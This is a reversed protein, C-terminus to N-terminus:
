FRARLGVYAARDSTGFGSQTQYQADFLNEVRLYLEAQDSVSWTLTADATTFDKMGVVAFSADYDLFDSVNRLSALLRLDDRLLTDIGLVLDHRPVRVLRTDTADLAELYTYAGFAETRAGLPLTGALELGTRRSDGDGNLLSSITGPQCSWTAFDYPCPDYMIEDSITIGFLTASLTAGSDFRKDLGLELSRSTEPDLAANGIFESSPYDGYLEDLSPARYGTAAAGRLTLGPDPQWAFTLRGTTFGGFASHDDHRLTVGLDLGEAPRLLLQAFGGATRTEASGGAINAYDAGETTTDYGLIAEGRAGLGTRAVYSLRRRDSEFPTSGEIRRTQEFTTFALDHRVRGTQAELFVRAGRQTNRTMGPTDGLGYPPVDLYGDYEAQAAEYFSSAGLTVDDTLRYSGSFSLRHLDSGDKETNGDNEDAASFGKSGYGSATLALAGRDGRAAVGASGRLTEHSGAEVAIRGTRGPELARLTQIDIVGAVASSGYLASQSGRLVEIRGIDGTSLGGFDFATTPAGPDSVDIGDIRVAIYEGALGRLRLGAQTGPPGQTALTIGPLRALYDALRLDASAELDARTIVTVSAGTRSAEVPALNPAIVIEDLQVVEQALAPLAIMALAPFLFLPRSRM